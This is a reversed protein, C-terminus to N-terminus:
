IVQILLCYNAYIMVVNFFISSYKGYFKPIDSMVFVFLWCAVLQIMHYDTIQATYIDLNNMKIMCLWMYISTNFSSLLYLTLYFLINDPYTDM